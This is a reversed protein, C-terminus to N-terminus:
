ARESELKELYQTLALIGEGTVASIPFVPSAGALELLQRADEVAHPNPALDIKTM